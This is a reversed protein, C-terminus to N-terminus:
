GGAKARVRYEVDYPTGAQRSAGWAAAAADRDDPHVVALWGNADATQEPVSQGTLDEGWGQTATFDGGGGDPSWCWVARSTAEALARYRAESRRLAEEARRTTEEHGGPPLGNTAPDDMGDETPAPAPTRGPVAATSRVPSRALRTITPPPDRRHWAPHGPSLRRLGPWGAHSEAM